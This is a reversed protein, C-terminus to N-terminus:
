IGAVRIRRIAEHFDCRALYMVMDIGGGGGTRARTDWFKPGSLLLEFDQGLVTAHWRTSTPDKTPAYTADRKAYDAIAELVCVANLARLRALSKESIPRMNLHVDREVRNQEFLCTPVDDERRHAPTEVVDPRRDLLFVAGNLEVLCSVASERVSRLEHPPHPFGRLDLAM